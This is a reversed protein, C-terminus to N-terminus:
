SSGLFDFLTGTYDIGSSSRLYSDIRHYKLLRFFGDEPMGDPYSGSDISKELWAFASYLRAVTSKGTAQNGVLMTVLDFEMYGDNSDLGSGVPGFNRIRMRVM